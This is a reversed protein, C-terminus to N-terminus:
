DQTLACRVRPIATGTPHVAISCTRRGITRMYSRVTCGHGTRTRAPAHADSLFSKCCGPPTRQQVYFAAHLVAVELSRRRFSCNQSQIPQSVGIMRQSASGIGVQELAALGSPGVQLNPPGMQSRHQLSRHHHPKPNKSNKWRCHQAQHQGLM